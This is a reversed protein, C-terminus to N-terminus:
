ALQKASVKAYARLIEVRRRVCDSVQEDFKGAVDFPKKAASVVDKLSEPSSKKLKEYSKQLQAVRETARCWNKDADLLRKWNKDYVDRLTAIQKDDQWLDMATRKTKHKELLERMERASDKLSWVADGYPWDVPKEQKGPAGGGLKVMTKAGAVGDAKLKQKKQFAMVAKETVPGFVGDAKLKPKAGAKNLQEQLAKVDAGKANLKLKKTSM